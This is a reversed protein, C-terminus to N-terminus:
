ALVNVSQSGNAQQQQAMDTRASAEAQYAESAQRASATSGANEARVIEASSQRLTTETDPSSQVTTRTGVASATNTEEPGALYAPSAGSVSEATRRADTEQAAQEQATPTTEPPRSVARSASSVQSVQMAPSISGISEIAM